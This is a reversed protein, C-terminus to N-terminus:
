QLSRLSPNAAPRGLGFDIAARMFDMRMAPPVSKIRAEGHLEVFEEVRQQFDDEEDDSSLSTLLAELRETDTVAPNPEPLPRNM